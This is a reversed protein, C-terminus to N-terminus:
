PSCQRSEMNLSLKEMVERLQDLAQDDKSLSDMINPIHIARRALWARDAEPLKPLCIGHERMLRVLTLHVFMVLRAKCNSATMQDVEVGLEPTVAGLVSPPPVNATTLEALKGVVAYILNSQPTGGYKLIFEEVAIIFIEEEIPREM